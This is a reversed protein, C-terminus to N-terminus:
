YKDQLKPDITLLMDNKGLNKLIIEISKSFHIKASEAYCNLREAEKDCQRVRRSM